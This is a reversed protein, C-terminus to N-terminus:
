PTDDPARSIDRLNAIWLDGPSRTGNTPDYTRITLDELWQAPAHELATWDHFRRDPGRSIVVWAPLGPALFYLLPQRHPAGPSFPDLRLLRAQEQHFPAGGLEAAYFDTLEPPLLHDRDPHPYTQHSQRYDEIAQRTLLLDAQARQVLRVVQRQELDTAILRYLAYTAVALALLVFLTSRRM